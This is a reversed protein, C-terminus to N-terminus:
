RLLDLNAIPIFVVEGNALAVDAGTTLIGIRTRRPQVHVAVVKGVQSAYPARLIRVQDGVGMAPAQASVTELPQSVPLPIIIEPRSGEASDGQGFLSAERGEAQQLLQFVPEAMPQGMFGETIMVPFRFRELNAILRSPM